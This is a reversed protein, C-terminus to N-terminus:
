RWAGRTLAFYARWYGDPGTSYQLTQIEAECEQLIEELGVKTEASQGRSAMSSCPALSRRYVRAVRVGAWKGLLYALGCRHKLAVLGWLLQGALVRWGHRLLWDKPYHKAVLLVQNRAILRVTEPHWMGLTASGRHRCTARPEYVGHIGARAARLGFEVDEMYSGFEEDLGGAALFVERRFLAATLPAFRIERRHNWIASDPRGAGCHWACGSAALLDFTGDLINEGDLRYIKGCAFAAESERLSRQLVELWDPSLEVDNNLIAVLPETLMAIGRNVAAAFGLNRDFELVEAGHRAACERSTDSSGNDVVLIRVPRVTQAAITPLLRDLFAAGNWNPIVAAIPQM